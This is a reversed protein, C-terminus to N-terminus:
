ETIVSGADNDIISGGDETEEALNVFSHYGIMPITMTPRKRRELYKKLCNVQYNASTKDNEPKGEWETLQYNVHELAVHIM